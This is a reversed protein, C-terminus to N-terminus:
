WLCNIVSKVSIDDYCAVHTYVVGPLLTQGAKVDSLM